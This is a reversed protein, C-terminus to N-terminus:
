RENLARALAQLESPGHLFLWRRQLVPQFDTLRSAGTPCNVETAGTFIFLLTLKFANGGASGGAQGPHRGRGLAPAEPRACAHPSTKAEAPRWQPGHSKQPM